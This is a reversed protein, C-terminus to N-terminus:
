HPTQRRVRAQRFQEMLADVLPSRYAHQSDAPQHPIVPGVHPTVDDPAEVADSPPAKFSLQM